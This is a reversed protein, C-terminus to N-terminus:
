RSGRGAPELGTSALRSRQRESEDLRALWAGFRPHSHLTALYPSTLVESRLRWNLAPDEALTAQQAIDLLHFADDFRGERVYADAARVNALWHSDGRLAAMARAADAARGVAPGALAIIHNREAPDAHPAADIIALAEASRGQAVAVLAQRYPTVVSPSIEQLEAMVARAAQADGVALLMAILNMRYIAGIPDLKVARRQLTVAEELRGRYLADGAAVSLMLPDDNGLELARELHRDALDREGVLAFFRAARLNVEPDDPDAALARQVAERMPTVHDSQPDEFVRLFHVAALGAWARAHQPDIEVTKLFFRRARQLDGPGRRDYFFRGQVYQARAHRAAASETSVPQADPAQWASSMGVAFALAGVTLVAALALVLPNSARRPTSAPDMGTAHRTAASRMEIDAVLRYGRKPLTEILRKATPDGSARVLHRRLQYICRSVADDTVAVREWVEHLLQDRSVLEGAHAALVCLVRMVKPDVRELGAPGAIEGVVPNIALVGLQFAREPVSQELTTESAGGM